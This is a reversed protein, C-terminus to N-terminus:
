AHWCLGTPRDLVQLGNARKRNDHRGLARLSSVTAHWGISLEGSFVKHLFWRMINIHDQGAYPNPIRREPSHGDDGPYQRKKYPTACETGYYTRAKRARIRPLEATLGKVEALGKM